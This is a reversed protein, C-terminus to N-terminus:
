GKESYAPKIKLFKFKECFYKVKNSKNRTIHIRRELYQPNRLGIKNDLEGVGLHRSHRRLVFSM